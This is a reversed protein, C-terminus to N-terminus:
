IFLIDNRRMASVLRNLVVLPTIEEVLRILWFCQHRGYLWLVWGSVNQRDTGTCFWNEFSHLFLNTSIEIFPSVDILRSPKFAKQLVVQAYTVVLPIEFQVHLLQRDSIRLIFWTNIVFIRIDFLYPVDFIHSNIRNGHRDGIFITIWFHNWDINVILARSHVTTWSLTAAHHM